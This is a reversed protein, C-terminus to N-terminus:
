CFSNKQFAYSEKETVGIQFNRVRSLWSNIDQWFNQVKNCSTFLHIITERQGECFVCTASDSIRLKVLYERTGLIRNLIVLTSSGNLNMVILLKCAYETPLKGFLQHLIM